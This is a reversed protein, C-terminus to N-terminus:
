AAPKSGASCALTSSLSLCTRVQAESGTMTAATLDCFALKGGSMFNADTIGAASVALGATDVQAGAGFVVGAQNIIVVQGNAQIRGEIASPDPGVVRNLTVAAASPQDFRVTHQSGVDFSQWNV